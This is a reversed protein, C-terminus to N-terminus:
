RGVEQLEGSEVKAYATRRDEPSLVGLYKGDREAEINGNSLFRLILGNKGRYTKGACLEELSKARMMRVQDHEERLCQQARGAYDSRRSILAALYRYARGGQVKGQVLFRKAVTFIDELRYGAERALRRLKCVGTDKVGMEVLPLLEAPLTIPNAEPNEKRKQLSIERLDEKFSLDVYVAGDSMETKEAAAQPEQGPYPLSVLDCLAGTFRYLRSCYLGYESRAREMVDVWGFSTLTALARQVTKESVQAEEALRDIRAKVPLFGNRQSARTLLACLVKRTSRTLALFTPNTHALLIAQQIATPYSRYPTLIDDLTYPRM